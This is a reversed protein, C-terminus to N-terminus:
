PTPHTGGGALDLEDRIDNLAAVAHGIVRHWASAPDPPPWELGLAAAAAYARAPARGSHTLGNRLHRIQHLVDVALDARGAGAADVRQLCVARLRDLAHPAPGPVDLKELIDTLAALRAALEDVTAPTDALRATREASALKLVPQGATIRHLRWIADLHDLAAHVATAPLAPAAYMAAPPSMVAAVTNLYDEVTVVDTFRRLLRDAGTLIYGDDRGTGDTHRNLHWTAPEHELLPRVADLDAAPGVAVRVQEDTAVVQTAVLPDDVLELRLRCLARVIALFQDVTSAFDQRGAMGAITLGIRGTTDAMSGHRPWWCPGYHSIAPLGALVLDLDHGAPALVSEAWQYVPWQGRKLYVGAAADVLLREPAALPRRLPNM